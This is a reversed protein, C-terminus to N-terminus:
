REMPGKSSGSREVYDRGGVWNRRVENGLEGM